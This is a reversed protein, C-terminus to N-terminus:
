HFPSTGFLSQEIKYGHEGVVNRLLSEVESRLKRMTDSETEAAYRVIGIEGTDTHVMLTLTRNAEDSGSFTHWNTNYAHPALPQMDYKRALAWVGSRLAERQEASANQTSYWIRLNFPGVQCSALGLAALVVAVAITRM